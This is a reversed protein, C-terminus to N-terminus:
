TFDCFGLVPRIDVEEAPEPEPTLFCVLGVAAAEIGLHLFTWAASLLAKPLFASAGLKSLLVVPIAPLLGALFIAVAFVLPLGESSVWFRFNDRLAAFFAGGRVVWL